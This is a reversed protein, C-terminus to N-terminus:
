ISVKKRFSLFHGGRSIFFLVLERVANGSGHLYDL